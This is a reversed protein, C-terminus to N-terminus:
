HRHKHETQPSSDGSGQRFLAELAREADLHESGVRSEQGAYGGPQAQATGATAALVAIVFAKM